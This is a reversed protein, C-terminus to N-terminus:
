AASASHVPPQAAEPHGAPSPRRLLYLHITLYIPVLWLPILALPLSVIEAMAGPRTFNLWTATGVATVLDAIGVLNWLVFLPRTSPREPVLLLVAAGLAVTIDGWGAREAFEAPIRGQTQLWVFNAGGIIRLINFGILPRRGLGKLGVNLTGRRLVLGAFVATLISVVVAPAAPPVQDLTHSASIAAVILGWALVLILLSRVPNKM